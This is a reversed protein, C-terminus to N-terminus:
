CHRALRGAADPCGLIREIRVPYLSAIPTAATVITRAMTRNTASAARVVRSALLYPWTESGPLSDTFRGAPPTSM